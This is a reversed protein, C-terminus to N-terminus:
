CKRGEFHVDFPSWSFEEHIIDSWALSVAGAKAVWLLFDRVGGRLLVCADLVATEV